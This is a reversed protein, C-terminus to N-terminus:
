GEITGPIASMPFNSLNVAALIPIGTEVATVKLGYYWDVVSITKTGARSRDM